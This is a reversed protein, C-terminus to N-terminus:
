KRISTELKQGNENESGGRCSSIFLSITQFPHLPTGQHEEGPITLLELRMFDLFFPLSVWSYSVMRRLTIVRWTIQSYSIHFSSYLAELSSFSYHWPLQSGHSKELPNQPTPSGFTLMMLLTTTMGTRQLLLLMVELMADLQWLSTDAHFCM